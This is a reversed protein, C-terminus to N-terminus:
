DQDPRFVVTGFRKGSRQFLENNTSGCANLTLIGALAVSSLAMLKHHAQFKKM